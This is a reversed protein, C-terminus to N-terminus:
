AMPFARRFWDVETLVAEAQPIHQRWGEHFRYREDEEDFVLSRWTIGLRSSWEDFGLNVVGQYEKPTVDSVFLIDGKRIYQLVERGIDRWLTLKTPQGTHDTLSVTTPLKSGEESAQYDVVAALVSVRRGDKLRKRLQDLPVLDHIEWKLEPPAGMSFGEGAFTSDYTAGEDAFMTSAYSIDPM